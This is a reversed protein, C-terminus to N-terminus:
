ESRGRDFALTNVVPGTYKCPEKYQIGVKNYFVCDNISPEYMLSGPTDNSYLYDVVERANMNRGLQMLRCGFKDDTTCDLATSVDMTTVRNLARGGTMSAGLSSGPRYNSSTAAGMRERSATYDSGFDIISASEDHNGVSLDFHESAHRTVTMHPCSGACVIENPCEDCSVDRSGDWYTYTYDMIPASNVVGAAVPTEDAENLVGVGRHIRTMAEKIQGPPYSRTAGSGGAPWMTWIMLILLFLLVAILIIHLM